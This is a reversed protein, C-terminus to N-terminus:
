CSGGPIELCRSCVANIGSVVVAGFVARPIGDGRLAPSPPKKENSWVEFFKNKHWVKPNQRELFKSIAWLLM